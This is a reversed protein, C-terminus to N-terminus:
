KLAEWLPSRSIPDLEFREYHDWEEGDPFLCMLGITPGGRSYGATHKIVIASEKTGDSGVWIVLDGPQFKSKLAEIDTSNKSSKM